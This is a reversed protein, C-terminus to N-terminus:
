FGYVEVANDALIKEAVRLARAKGFYGDAVKSALVDAILDKALILSAYSHDLIRHDGGWAFIKNAPAMEIWTSLARRYASPAFHPFWCGDIYVNPFYKAMLGAEEYYPYGGHFVDFTLASYKAFLNTLHTPNANTITNGM